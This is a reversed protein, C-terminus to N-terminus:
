FFITGSQKEPERGMGILKQGLRCELCRRHRCYANLLTNLAQSELASSPRIGIREWEETIRNKEPKLEELIDLARECHLNSDRHKGYVFLMPVVVNIIVINISAEGQHGTRQVSEIGFTYHTRWYDSAPEDLLEMLRDVPKIETIESFLPRGRSMLAALQSLRITPFGAPRLRHFKWLWGHMPVLSYKRSLVRFERSLASFYPEGVADRFLDGGLMGAMGYLLAEVQLRNDAHKRILRLPLLRALREFNDTNVRAGFYRAMLRYMTEEWDHGTETLIDGIAGTKEQLREVVLYNLWHSIFSQDLQNIDAQCAIVMPNNSYELYKDYVGTSIQLLVGPLTHGSQTIAPTDEEAVVHLIVNNYVPDNHHGHRFWDSSKIHIEINGAWITDGIRLRANFFDPGSDRNYEGPALVEIRNGQTDTLEDSNYLRYKWVYHLFEEKM